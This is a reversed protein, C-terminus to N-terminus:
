SSAPPPAKRMGPRRPELPMARLLRPQAAISGRLESLLQNREAVLSIAAEILARSQRQLEDARRVQTVVQNYEL